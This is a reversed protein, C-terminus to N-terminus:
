PHKVAGLPGPCIVIFNRTGSGIPGERVFGDFTRPPSGPPPSPTPEGVVFADRDLVVPPLLLDTFTPSDPYRFTVSRRQKLVKLVKYNCVYDGPALDRTALGFSKGWSLLAGGEEVPLVAVRHGELVTFPAAPCIVLGELIIPSGADVTKVAIAANDGPEPCLVNSLVVPPAPAPAPQEYGIQMELLPATSCFLWPKLLALWLTQV